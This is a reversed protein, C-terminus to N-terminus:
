GQWMQVPVPSAAAVDLCRSAHAVDLVRPVTHAPALRRVQPVAGLAKAEQKVVQGLVAGVSGTHVPGGTLPLGPENALTGLQTDDGGTGACVDALGPASTAMAAAVASNGYPPEELLNDRRHMAAQLREELRLLVHPQGTAVFGVTTSCLTVNRASAHSSALASMM